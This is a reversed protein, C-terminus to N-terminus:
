RREWVEPNVAVREYASVVCPPRSPAMSSTFYNPALAVAACDREHAGKGGASPDEHAECTDLYACFCSSGAGAVVIPGPRAMARTVLGRVTQPGPHTRALTYATVVTFVSAVVLSPAVRPLAARAAAALLFLMALSLGVVHRGQPVVLLAGSSTAALGLALWGVGRPLPGRRRAWGAAVALALAAVVVAGKWGGLREPTLAAAAVEVATAGSRAVHLGFRVPAVRAAGRVSTAGPFDRRMLEGYDLAPAFGPPFSHPDREYAAFAYHQGFAFWARKDATATGLTIALAATSFVAAWVIRATRRPAAGPSAAWAAPLLFPIAFAAELRCAAAALALAAGATFGARPWRRSALATFALLVLSIAARQPGVIVLAHSSGLAIAALAFAPRADRLLTRASLGVAAAFVAAWAVHVVPVARVPGLAARAIGLTLAYGPSWALDLRAGAVLGRGLGLYTSEDWWPLDQAVIQPAVLAFAAVPLALAALRAARPRISADTV